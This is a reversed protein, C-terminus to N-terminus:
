PSLRNQARAFTRQKRCENDIADGDPTTPSFYSRGLTRVMLQPHRHSLKEQSEVTILINKAEYKDKRIIPQRSLLEWNTRKHNPKILSPNTLKYPPVVM